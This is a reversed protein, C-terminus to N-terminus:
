QKTPDKENFRSWDIREDAPATDKDHPCTLLTPYLDSGTKLADCESVHDAHPHSLVAQAIKNKKYADLKSILNERIFAVPDIFDSNGGGMDLIFGQNLGTRIFAASGRGVAFIWVHTSFSAM